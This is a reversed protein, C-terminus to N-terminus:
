ELYGLAKLHMLLHESEEETLGEPTDGAESIDGPQYRVPRENMYPELLEHLVRGDLDDPQAVDYLYLLTAPIDALEVPVTPEGSAFPRGAFVFLGERSHWGLDGYEASSLFYGDPKSRGPRPTHRLARVNWEGGYADLILWPAGAAVVGYLDEPLCVARFLPQNSGPVLVSELQDILNRAMEDRQDAFIENGADAYSGNLYLLGSYVSGPSVMSKDADPADQFELYDLAGPLDRELRRWFRGTLGAPAIQVANLLIRRIALEPFGKQMGRHQLWTALLWNLVDRRESEARRGPVLYGNDRLWQYLMFEGRLRSSGHDSILMVTDPQFGDLLRQVDGDSQRYAEAIREIDPMKHNAHDTLMLNIVLVDVPILESLGIATRVLSSQHDVEAKLIRDPDESSLVRASVVPRLGPEHESVWRAAAQPYVIDSATEPSGFGSVVFGDIAAPPYTFPVNVLGVRLGAENLRTWFPTGRRVGANTPAFEHTAPNRWLMDFVGHKGPNKGTSITAWATPTWPPMTSALTGWVGEAMLNELAPMEGTGVLPQVYEWCAADLGVVLTRM